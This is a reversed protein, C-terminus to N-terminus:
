WTLTWFSDYLAFSFQLINTTKFKENRIVFLLLRLKDIDFSKVFVNYTTVLNRIQIQKVSVINVKTHREDENDRCLNKTNFNSISFRRGTFM